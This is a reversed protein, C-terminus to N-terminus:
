LIKGQITSSFQKIIERSNPGYLQYNLSLVGTGYITFKASNKEIRQNIGRVSSYLLIDIDLGKKDLRYNNIAKSTLIAVELQIYNAKQNSTVLYFHIIENYNNTIESILSKLSDYSFHPKGIRIIENEVEQM